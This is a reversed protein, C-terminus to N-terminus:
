LNNVLVTEVLGIANMLREQGTGSVVEFPLGRRTLEDHYLDFLKERMHPSERQPDAEWPLDIDCLLFLDYRNEKIKQLIWPDCNGYKVESWIKTVILETDCFLLHKAHQLWREEENIQWKAIKLIDEQNYPRDLRDIYERAVEPVFVTSYHEALEKALRSKGTSEPGTVAIKLIRKLM